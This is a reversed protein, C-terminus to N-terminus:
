IAGPVTTPIKSVRTDLESNGTYDPVIFLTGLGTAVTLSGSAKLAILVVFLLIIIPVIILAGIPSYSETIMALFISAIVKNFIGDM